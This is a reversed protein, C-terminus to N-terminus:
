RMSAAGRAAVTLAHMHMDIKPEPSSPPPLPEACAGLLGVLLVVSLSRKM